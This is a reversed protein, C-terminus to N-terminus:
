EDAVPEQAPQRRKEVAWLRFGIDTGDKNTNLTTFDGGDDKGDKGVSYVVVGEAAHRYRLPKGDYPDVPVAKLWGPVLADLTQPWGGHKLRYGEVALAAAACRLVAQNRQFAQAAHVEAPMLLRVLGRHEALSAQLERFRPMQQESPLRAIEVSATMLELLTARDDTIAGPLVLRLREVQLDMGSGAREGLTPDVHSLPIDGHELGALLLDMGAREGRIAILLLPQAAEDELMDQVHVLDKAATQGQALTRELSHVAQANCAIRVLHPIFMPEDGVSRGANLIALCDALAGPTDGDHARLMAEYSLLHGVARTDQITPLLTSIWDPRITIAHRGRLKGVLKHAEALANAARELESRLAKVQVATLQRPPFLHDTFSDRLKQLRRDEEPPLGGFGAEWNPWRGPLARHAAVVLLAANEEDPISAREADLDFLRWSPDLGDAQAFARELHRRAQWYRYGLVGLVLALMLGLITGLRVWNGRRAAVPAEVADALDSERM